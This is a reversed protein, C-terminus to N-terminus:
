PIFAPATSALEAKLTEIVSHWDGIAPQRFLRASPYWPSDERKIMWRWDPVFPLLIWVRKGLAGALHAVATDVSIIVDMECVLSATDVFDRLRGGHPAIKNNALWEVDGSRVDKQISHYECDLQLLPALMEVPISRNRDNVHKAAGSWILGVRPKTKPGLHKRWAERNEPEPYLYPAEAPITSLTTGLALPLSMLPCHFDYEPFKKGKAIVTVSGQLSTLLKVLPDQVELIVTAGLRELTAAYRCFQITDGLGQEAYLVIRKDVLLEKGLWLPQVFTRRGGAQASHWRWEYSKWGEEFHGLMLSIISRYLDAEPYDPALALARDFCAAAEYYRGLQYLILGRNHWIMAGSPSVVITKDSSALAEEYRGLRYLVNTRNNHAEAFKAKVAIAKDYNALAAEYRKLQGMGCGLDYYAEASPPGIAIASELLRVSEDVNGRRTCVIALLRMIGTHGPYTSLIGRYAAEAEKLNGADRLASAKALLEHPM